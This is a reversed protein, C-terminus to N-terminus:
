KKSVKQQGAQDMVSYGLTEIEARLRDAEPWDRNTRAQQREELLSKIKDTLQDEGVQSLQNAKGVLQPAQKLGLGLVQDFDLVLKLKEAVPLNSKVVQWLVAVAEPTKLDDYMFQWFEDKLKQAPASLEGVGAKSQTQWGAVERVLKAFSKDAGSLNDWTFNMQSRYHGSLFLLRLAMPQFGKEVVEPLTVFNELSKSMKQGDVQVMNHHVWYKVFPQKGTATESQAIENQHHVAIHDVGGTHIDVQDGIYKLCLASCELHWGPFGRDGWPSLWVMQRKEGARELKWLAFDTPNRKGEVKGIRAGEEMGAVDLKALQGYTPFKATDFYVGDGAIVYTLGKAELRKVLEIQEPIHDTVKAVVDSRLNGILDMSEFFLKTFKEAIQWVTEGYKVAGKELKDEGTDSDSTLHGVDTINMVHRVQFGAQKLTRVLVDDMLYKRVHGIHTYDYVTPGCTYLGVQPPHLSEIKEIKRSLTNYLKM